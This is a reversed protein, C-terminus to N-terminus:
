QFPENFSEYFVYIIKENPNISENLKKTTHIKLNGYDTSMFGGLYFGVVEISSTSRKLNLTM